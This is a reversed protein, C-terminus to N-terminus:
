AAEDAAAHSEGPRLEYRRVVAAREDGTRVRRLFEAFPPDGDGTELKDDSGKPTAM